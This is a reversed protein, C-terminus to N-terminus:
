KQSIQRGNNHVVFLYLQIASEPPSIQKNEVHVEKNIEGKEVGELLNANKFSKESNDAM